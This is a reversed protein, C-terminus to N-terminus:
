VLLGGRTRCTSGAANKWDSRLTSVDPCLTIQIAENQLMVFFQSKFYPPAILTFQNVLCFAPVLM